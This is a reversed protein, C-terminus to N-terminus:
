GITINTALNETLMIMTMMEDLDLYMHFTVKFQWFFSQNKLYKFAKDKLHMSFLRFVEVSDGNGGIHLSLYEFQKSSYFDNETNKMSFNEGKFVNRTANM